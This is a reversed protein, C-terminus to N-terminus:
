EDRKANSCLRIRPPGCCNIDHTDIIKSKVKTFIINKPWKLGNKFCAISKLAAQAIDCIPKLRFDFRLTLNLKDLDSICVTNRNKFHHVCFRDFM